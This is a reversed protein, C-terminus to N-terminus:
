RRMGLGTETIDRLVQIAALMVTAAGVMEPSALLDGMVDDMSGDARGAMKRARRELAGLLLFARYTPLASVNLLGALVLRVLEDLEEETIEDDTPSVDDLALARPPGAEPQGLGLDRYSALYAAGRAALVGLQVRWARGALSMAAIGRLEEVSAANAVAIYHTRLGETIETLARGGEVPSLKAAAYQRLARAQGKPGYIRRWRAVERAAEDHWDTLGAHGASNFDLVDATM